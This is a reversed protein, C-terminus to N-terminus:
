PQQGSAPQMIGVRLVPRTRVGAVEGLRISITGHLVPEHGRMGACQLELRAPHRILALTPNAALSGTEASTGAFQAEAHAFEVPFAGSAERAWEAASIPTAESDVLLEVERPEAGRGWRLRWDVDVGSRTYRLESIVLSPGADAPANGGVGGTGGRGGGTPAHGLRGDVGFGRPLLRDALLRAAFRPAPPGAPAAVPACTDSIARASRERLRRCVTQGAPDHWDRHDALECKRLYAGFTDVDPPLQARLRASLARNCHPVFLAVVYADSLGREGGTWGLSDSRDDWRVVMGPERIFTVIPRNPEGVQQGHIAWTPAPHNDPPDLRLLQREVRAISLLGVESDGELVLNLRIPVVRHDVLGDLSDLPASRRALPPPVALNYLAQVVKFIPLMNRASVLRSGVSGRLVPGGAFRDNDLRVCYWRQLAVRLYEEYDAEWPPRWIPPEGEDHAAPDATMGSAEGGAAPALDARIFPVIVATGTHEGEFPDLGLEGLVAHIDGHAVLPGGGAEGWWAIGTASDRQLRAESGEDEVLCAALREEHGGGEIRFRSYFFVLGIGLRYYVTKGLGWSGGAGHREQTRGVEYVLKLLNGRTTGPKLQDLRTPGSLGTTGWDRIELLRHPGEGLQRIAGAVDCEGLARAVSDTDHGRLRFDVHVPGDGAAADLSNQVSERVLLDLPVLSDNQLSRRLLSGCQQMPGLKLPDYHM